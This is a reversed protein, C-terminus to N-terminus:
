RSGKEQWTSVMRRSGSWHDDLYLADIRAIIRLTSQRLPVPGYHVMSRALGQQACQRSISLEPHDDDVLKRL